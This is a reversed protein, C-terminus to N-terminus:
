GIKSASKSDGAYKLIEDDNLIRSKPEISFKGSWTNKRVPNGEIDKPLGFRPCMIPSTLRRIERERLEEDFNQYKSSRQPYKTGCFNCTIVGDVEEINPSGCKECVDEM